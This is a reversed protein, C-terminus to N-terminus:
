ERYFFKHQSITRAGGFSSLYQSIWGEARWIERLERDRPDRSIKRADPISKGIGGEDQHLVSVICWSLVNWYLWRFIVDKMCLILWAFTFIGTNWCCCLKHCKEWKCKLTPEQPADLTGLCLQLTHSHSLVTSGPPRDKLWSSLTQDRNIFITSSM